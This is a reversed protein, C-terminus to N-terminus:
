PPAGITRCPCGRQARKKGVLFPWRLLRDKGSDRIGTVRCISDRPFATNYLARRQFAREIYYQKDPPAWM